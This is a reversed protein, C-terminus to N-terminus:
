HAVTRALLALAAYAGLAGLWVMALPRTRSGWVWWPALPLVVLAGFARLWARRTVLAVVISLHALTFVGLAIALAAGM